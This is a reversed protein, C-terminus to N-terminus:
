LKLKDNFLDLVVSFLEEGSDSKRANVKEVLDKDLKTFGTKLDELVEQKTSYYTKSKLKMTDKDTNVDKLLKMEKNIISRLHNDAQHILNASCTVRDQEKSESDDPLPREPYKFGTEIVSLLLDFDFNKDESPKVVFSFKEWTNKFPDPPEISGAMRTIVESPVTEDRKENFRLATKLQTNLYLQCYGLEHKRAMQFYPYRMSSLHNNDDIVILRRKCDGKELYIRDSFETSQIDCPKKLDQHLKLDVTELIKTRLDKWLGPESVTRRQVDLPILQDYSVHILKTNGGKDQLYQKFEKVFSTKGAGPLGILVLILTDSPIIDSAM